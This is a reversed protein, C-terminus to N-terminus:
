LFSIVDHTNDRIMLIMTCVVVTIINYVIITCLLIYYIIDYLYSASTLPGRRERFRIGVFLLVRPSLSLAHALSQRARSCLGQTINCYIYTHLLCRNVRMYYYIFYADHVSHPSHALSLSLYVYITFLGSGRGIQQRRRGKKWLVRVFVSCVSCLVADSLM